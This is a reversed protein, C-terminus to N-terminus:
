APVGDREMWQEFEFLLATKDRTKSGIMERIIAACSRGRSIRLGKIELTLGSRLVMLRFAHIQNGTIMTM